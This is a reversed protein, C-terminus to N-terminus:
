VRKLRNKNFLRRWRSFIRGSQIRRYQIRLKEVLLDETDELKAEDMCNKWKRLYLIVRKKLSHSIVACALRKTHCYNENFLSKNDHIKKSNALRQLQLFFFSKRKKCYSLAAHRLASKIYRRSSLARQWHSFLKQREFKIKEDRFSIAVAGM